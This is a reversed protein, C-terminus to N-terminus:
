IPRSGFVPNLSPVLRRHGRRCSDPDNGRGPETRESLGLVGEAMESRGMHSHQRRTSTALASAILAHSATPAVRSATRTAIKQCGMRSFHFCGFSEKCKSGDLGSAIVTSTSTSM